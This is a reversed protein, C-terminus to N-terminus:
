SILPPQMQADEELIPPQFDPSTEEINPLDFMCLNRTLNRYKKIVSELEDLLGIYMDIPINLELSKNGLYYQIVNPTQGEQM